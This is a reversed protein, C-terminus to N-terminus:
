MQIRVWDKIHLKFRLIEDEDLISSHAIPRRLVNLTGLTQKVSEISRYTDSFIDWNEEIIDILDKFDTYYIPEESRESFPTDREQQRRAEVKEKVNNPVKTNWWNQGSKEKLRNIITNRISNELCFYLYYLDGMQRAQQRVVIEFVETDIIEDQKLTQSHKIDLGSKEIDSLESELLLNQAGFLKLRKDFDM